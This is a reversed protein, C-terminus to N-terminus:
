GPLMTQLRYTERMLDLAWRSCPLGAAKKAQCLMTEPCPVGQTDFPSNLASSLFGGNSATSVSRQHHHAALPTGGSPAVPTTSESDSM